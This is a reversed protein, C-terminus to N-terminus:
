KLRRCVHKEYETPKFGAERLCNKRQYFGSRGALTKGKGKGLQRRFFRGWADQCEGGGLRKKKKRDGRSAADAKGKTKWGVPKPRVRVDIGGVRAFMLNGGNEKQYSRGGKRKRNRDVIV